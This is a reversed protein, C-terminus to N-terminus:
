TKIIYNVARYPPRNEHAAGGGAYDTSNTNPGATNVWASNTQSAWYTNSTDPLSTTLTRDAPNTWQGLGRDSGATYPSSPGGSTVAGTNTVWFGGGVGLNWGSGAGVQVLQSGVVHTHNQLYHTHDVGPVFHLHDAGVHTHLALHYHDMGHVHNGMTHPHSALEAISLVHTAEGGISTAGTLAYSGGSGVMFLDRTDPITFHAVDGGFSTGLIAYLAPYLAIPVSQGQCLLWGAPPTPTWWMVTSGTPALGTLGQPGQPGTPGVPGQPGQPGTGSVTAGAHILTGPPQGGPYNQNVVTLTDLVPDVATVSFYDGGAIYIIQGVAFSDAAIVFALGTTVPVTFDEKLTTYASTGSVGQPGPPGQPGTGGTPGAPGRQNEPSIITGPSVQTGPAMNTPDGSNVLNVQYQNPPSGICVFTGAGPIYVRLGPVMWSSDTVSALVPTTSVDPVTFLQSLYSFSNKGAPGRPGPAGIQGPPGIQGQPGPLGVGPPGAPGPTGRLTDIYHWAPQAGPPASPQTAIWYAGDDVTYASDGPFVTVSDIAPLQSYSSYGGKFDSLATTNGRFSAREQGCKVMSKQGM